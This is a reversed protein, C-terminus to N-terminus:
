TVKVESELDDLQEAPEELVDQWSAEHVDSVEAQELCVGRDFYRVDPSEESPLVEGGALRRWGRVLGHRIAGTWM